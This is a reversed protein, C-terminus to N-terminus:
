APSGAFLRGRKGGGSDRSLYMAIATVITYFLVDLLEM